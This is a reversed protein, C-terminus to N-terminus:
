FPGVANSVAVYSGFDNTVTVTVRVYSGSPFPTAVIVTPAITFAMPDADAWSPDDPDAALGLQWQYAWSSANLAPNTWSGSDTVYIVNSSFASNDVLPGVSDPQLAPPQATPDYVLLWTANTDPPDGGSPIADQAEYVIGNWLVIDGEIYTTDVDWDGQWGTSVYQIEVPNLIPADPSEFLDTFRAFFSRDARSLGDADTFRYTWQGPVEPNFRFSVVGGGEDTVGELPGYSTLVGGPTRVALSYPPNPTVFMDKVTIAEGAMVIPQTALASIQMSATISIPSDERILTLTDDTIDVVTVIEANRGAGDFVPITQPLVVLAPFPVDPFRDATAGLSRSQGDFVSLTLGTDPPSPATTIRAVPAYAM